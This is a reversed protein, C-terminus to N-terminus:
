VSVVIRPNSEHADTVIEAVTFVSRVSHISHYEYVNKNFLTVVWDPNKSYYIQQSAKGATRRNLEKVVQPKAEVFGEKLNRNWSAVLAIDTAIPFSLESINKQLGFKESIFVPNDGTFFTHSESAVDFSWTMKELVEIL